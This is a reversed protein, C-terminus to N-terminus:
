PPVGGIWKAANEKYPNFEAQRSQGFAETTRGRTETFNGAPERRALL